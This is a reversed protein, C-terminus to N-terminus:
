DGANGVALEALADDPRAFPDGPGSASAPYGILYSIAVRGRAGPREGIEWEYEPGSLKGIIERLEEPRYTRLCSVVGDWFMVFSIIPILYTWLLRSWRFPRILPTFIIPVLAWPLMLAIRSAARKTVEFIAIGQGADVANQLVARAEEPRFHHFSTFMTRFGDLERPVETADVPDPHFSIRDGSAAGLKEFATLNPYKDTLSIHLGDADGRLERSLDLWPGGGGSCMDIISRNKTSDLVNQLMPVIPAYAKFFHLGFGLADTIEDRLSSPLWPQEHLEILQLRRM